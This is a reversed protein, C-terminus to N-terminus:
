GCLTGAHWLRPVRVGNAPHPARQHTQPGLTQPWGVAMSLPHCPSSASLHEKPEPLCPPAGVHRGREPTHMSGPISPNCQRGTSRALAHLSPWVADHLTPTATSHFTSRTLLKADCTLLDQMRPRAHAFMQPCVPQGNAHMILACTEKFAPLRETGDVGDAPTTSYSPQATTTSILESHSLTMSGNSEVFCPWDCQEAKATRGKPTGWLVHTYEYVGLAGTPLLWLGGAHAYAWTPPSSSQKVQRRM